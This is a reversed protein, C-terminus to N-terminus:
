MNKTKSNQKWAKLVWGIYKCTSGLLLQFETQTLVNMLPNKDKQGISEESKRQYSSYLTSSKLLYKYIFFFM